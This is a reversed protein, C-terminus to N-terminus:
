VRCGEPVPAGFLTRDAVEKATPLEVMKVTLADLPNHDRDLRALGRLRRETPLDPDIRASDEADCQFM